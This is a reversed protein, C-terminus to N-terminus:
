TTQKAVKPLAEKQQIRETEKKFHELLKERQAAEQQALKEKESQADYLKESREQIQEPTAPIQKSKFKNKVWQYAYLLKQMASQPKKQDKIQEFEGAYYFGAQKTYNLWQSISKKEVSQASFHLPVITKQQGDYGILCYVNWTYLLKYLIFQIQPYLSHKNLEATLQLYERDEDSQMSTTTLWEYITVFNENITQHAKAADEPIALCASLITEIADNVLQLRVETLPIELTQLQEAQEQLQQHKMTLSAYQLVDNQKALYEQEHQKTMTQFEQQKLDQYDHFKQLDKKHKEQASQVDKQGVSTSNYLQVAKKHTIDYWQKISLTAEPYDLTIKTAPNNNFFISQTLNWCLQIKALLEVIQLIFLENYKKFDASDIQLQLEPQKTPIWSTIQKKVLPQYCQSIYDSIITKPNALILHAPVSLHQQLNSLLYELQQSRSLTDAIQLVIAIEKLHKRVTTISENLPNETEFNIINSIPATLAIPHPISAKIDSPIIKKPKSYQIVELLNIVSKQPMSKPTKALPKKIFDTYPSSSIMPRSLLMAFITIIKIFFKM